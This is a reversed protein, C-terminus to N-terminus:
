QSSTMLYGWQSKFICCCFTLFLMCFKVHFLPSLSMAKSQSCSSAQEREREGGAVLPLVRVIMHAPRQALRRGPDGRLGLVEKHVHRGEGGLTRVVLEPDAADFAEGQLSHRGNIIEVLVCRTSPELREGDPQTKNSRCSIDSTNKKM